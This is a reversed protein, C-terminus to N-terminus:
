KDGIKLTSTPLVAPEGKLKGHEIAWAIVMSEYYYGRREKVRAQGLGNEDAKKLDKQISDWRKIYKNVLVVKKIQDSRSSQYSPAIRKSPFRSPLPWPNPLEEAWKRFDDLDIAWLARYEPQQTLGHHSIAVRLRDKFDQPCLRFVLNPAFPTRQLGPLAEPEYDLSLAVAEWLPATKVNEWVEWRAGM